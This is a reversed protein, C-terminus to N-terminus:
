IFGLMTNVDLMSSRKAEQSASHKIQDLPTIEVAEEIPIEGVAASLKQIERKYAAQLIPNNTRKLRRDLEQLQQHMLLLKKKEDADILEGGKKVGCLFEDPRIGYLQHNAGFLIFYCCLLFAILLDDHGVDSHDVRGNKTTLGSIEDIISSDYLRDGVLELSTTLVSSYLFERSTSSKTTSFGFMKRVNGSNYDLNRVETDKTYEQYYKNYIRNLPNFRERQMEAFIFDLFMAGNKNREPIFISRPFDRLFKLICKAVFLLNITNCKFTCVIHLDYPDVMCMTTFDRGVNDSTDSGIVYPKNRLSEDNMLVKPDDYWRILLSEFTTTTLPDRKSGQIKNLMDTPLISGDSGHLWQNLYDKAITKPDKGRSVHEFWEDTKGLQKYSYEMYLYNNKSNTRIVSMLDERNQCDYLKETFRLGDCAIRYCWRGRPDDLDGATSTMVIASPLGSQKAQAGAADMGATASDYSLNINDYYSVEDWNEAALSQGRAQDGAAVKDSQAVFTVLATKLAAYAIGEKNNTDGATQYLLYPPLADRLKKLRDVNENQLKIGKCFMGWTCHNGAIYLYWAIICMTGITKGIQRPMVQFGNISNLFTWAQALNSRNLIYPVGGSGSATVRIVERIFYWFNRKCEFAIRQRLEISPDHLNHPDRGILSKDYIALPFLNNKIGMKNLIISLKLFTLNKTNVDAVAGEKAFDEAFLIM